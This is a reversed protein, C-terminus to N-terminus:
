IKLANETFIVARGPNAGPALLEVNLRKVPVVEIGLNRASKELESNESGVVILIGRKRKYRRGRTKGRGARIKRSSMKELEEKFGIIELVKKVDSTKKIKEIDSVIAFPYDEPVSYRKSVLEKNLSASLASRIAKKNEKKNIKKEFIKESKPPHARRGSVTGPAFAGVWIFRSGRRALIKRPVRSIGYGYATRFVRRRRMLKASPRKGADEFSGYPQRKSATIALFSKKILENRISESFQEPLDLTGVEKNELNKVKIKM